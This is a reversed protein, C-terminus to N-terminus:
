KKTFRITAETAKGGCDSNVNDLFKVTLEADNETNYAGPLKASGLIVGSDCKFSTEQDNAFSVLNCATDDFEIIWTRIVGEGAWNGEFSRTGNGSDVLEVDGTFVAVGFSGNVLTEVTYSGVYTNEKIGNNVDNGTMEEIAYNTGSKTIKALVAVQGCDLYKTHLADKRFIAENNIKGTQNFTLDVNLSKFADITKVADFDALVYYDGDELDSTIVMTEYAEGNQTKIVSNKADPAPKTALLLKLDAFDTASVDAGSNDTVPSSLTWGMDIVLDDKTLNEITFDVVLPKITSNNSFGGITVTLTETEEKLEDSLIKISGAVSKSFAPITLSSPMTYDADLTATGATQALKIVIDYPKAESSTIVFPFESDNEVLTTTKTPFDITLTPATGINLVSSGTADDSDDCSVIFLSASLIFAAQKIYKLM